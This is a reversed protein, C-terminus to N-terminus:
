RLVQGYGLPASPRQPPRLVFTLSSKVKEMKKPECNGKRQCSVIYCHREFMWSLDCDSLDCCAATCDSVSVAHPVRMIKMTELNPSIIADSYKAGERCQECFCGTLIGLLLCLAGLELALAM